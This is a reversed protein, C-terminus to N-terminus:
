NKYILSGSLKWNGVEGGAVPWASELRKVCSEDICFWWFTICKTSHLFVSLNLFFSFIGPIRRNRSFDQHFTMLLLLNIICAQASFTRQHQFYIPTFHSKLSLQSDLHFSKSSYHSSDVTSESNPAFASASSIEWFQSVSGSIQQLRLWHITWIQLQAM